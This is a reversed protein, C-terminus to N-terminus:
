SECHRDDVQRGASVGARRRRIGEVADSAALDFTAPFVSLQRLVAQEAATLLEFSWDMTARLTQQRPLATRAGGALLRFRDDLRDAIQQAALARMRGAALELALPIGDLHRCIPAVAAANDTTVGFGVQARGSASCPRRTPVTSFAQASATVGM